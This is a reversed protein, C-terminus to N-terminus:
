FFTQEGASSNSQMKPDARPDHAKCLITNMLIIEFRPFKQHLIVEPGRLEARQRVHM